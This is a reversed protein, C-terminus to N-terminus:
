RIAQLCDCSPGRISQELREDLASYTELAELISYARPAKTLRSVAKIVRDDTRWEFPFCECEIWDAFEELERRFNDTIAPDSFLASEIQAFRRDWLKM